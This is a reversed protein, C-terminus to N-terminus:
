RIAPVRRMGVLEMAVFVAVLLAQAVAFARGLANMPAIAAALLSGAIWGADLAALLLVAGISLDRRAAWLLVPGFAGCILGAVELPITGPLAFDAALPGAAVVLLVGFALTVIGNLQMSKRALSSM